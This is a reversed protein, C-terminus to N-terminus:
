AAVERALQIVEAEHLQAGTHDAWTRAFDVAEGMTWFSKICSGDLMVARYLRKSAPDRCTVIRLTPVMM